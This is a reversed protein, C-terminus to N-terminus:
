NTSHTHVWHTRPIECHRESTCLGVDGDVDGDVDSAVNDVVDTVMVVETM